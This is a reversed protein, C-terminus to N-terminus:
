TARSALRYAPDRLIPRLTARLLPSPLGLYPLASKMYAQQQAARVPDTHEALAARVATLLRPDAGSM